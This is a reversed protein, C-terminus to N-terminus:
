EHKNEEIANAILRGVIYLGLSACIGTFTLGLKDIAYMQFIGTLTGIYFTWKKSM